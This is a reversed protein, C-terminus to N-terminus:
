CRLPVVDSFFVPRPGASLRFLMLDAGGSTTLPLLITLCRFAVMTPPRVADLTL